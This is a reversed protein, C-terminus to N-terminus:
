WTDCILFQNLSFTKKWFLPHYLKGTGLIEKHDNMSSIYKQYCFIIVYVDNWQFFLIISIVQHNTIYLKYSASRSDSCYLQDNIDAVEIIFMYNLAVIYSSANYRFFWMVYWVHFWISEDINLIFWSTINVQRKLNM